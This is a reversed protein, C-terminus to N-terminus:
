LKAQGRFYHCSCHSTVLTIIKGGPVAGFLLFHIGFCGLVETSRLFHILNPWMLQWAPRISCCKPWPDFCDLMLM